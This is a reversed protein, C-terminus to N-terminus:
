SAALLHDEDRRRRARRAGWVAAALVALPALAVALALAGIAEWALVELARGLARDLRSGPAAAGTDETQLELQITAFRAEASTAARSTRLQRLQAQAQAREELLRARTPPDLRETTLRTTLRAIRGRLQQIATDFDDLSQQLDDIQVNQAVITGLESLRTVADGARASPVRLTLSATGEQGTAYRVAGVFGGLDRAIVLARQTAESLADTDEVALTLSAVYRQARGATTGPTTAKLASGAATNPPATASEAGFPMSQDAAPEATTPPSGADRTAPQPRTVGIAIATAVALGAAAPVLLTLRRHRRLRDRLSPEAPAPGSALTLVHLRLPEGARPRTARLEDVIESVTM